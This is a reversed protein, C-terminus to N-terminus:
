QDKLWEKYMAESIIYGDARQYFVKGNIIIKKM